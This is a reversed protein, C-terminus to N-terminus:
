EFVGRFRDKILGHEWATQEKKMERQSSFTPLQWRFTAMKTKIGGQKKNMKGEIILNRKPQAPM